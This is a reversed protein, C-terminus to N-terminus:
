PRRRAGKRGRWRWAARRRRGVRRRRPQRCRPRTPAPPPLPAVSGLRARPSARPRPWNQELSKEKTRQRPPALPTLPSLAGLWRRRRRRRNRRRCTQLDTFRLPKPKPKNRCFAELKLLRTRGKKQKTEATNLTSMLLCCSM